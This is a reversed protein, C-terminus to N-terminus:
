GIQGGYILWHNENQIHVFLLIGVCFAAVSVQDPTYGADKLYSAGKALPRKVLQMTWRDLM